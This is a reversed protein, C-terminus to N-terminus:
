RNMIKDIIFAVAKNDKRFQDSLMDYTHQNGYGNDIKWQKYTALASIVVSQGKMAFEMEGSWTTRYPTEVGKM